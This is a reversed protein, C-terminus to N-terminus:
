VDCIYAGALGVAVDRTWLPAVAVSEWATRRNSVEAVRYTLGHKKAWCGLKEEVRWKVVVGRV